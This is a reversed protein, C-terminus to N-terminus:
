REGKELREIECENNTDCIIVSNGVRKVSKIKSSSCSAILLMISLCLLLRM